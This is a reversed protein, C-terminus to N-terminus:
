HGGIFKFINLVYDCELDVRSDKETDKISEFYQIRQPITLSDWETINRCDWGFIKKHFHMYRPKIDDDNSYKLNFVFGENWVYDELHIQIFNCDFKETLVEFLKEDNEFYFHEIYKDQYVVRGNEWTIYNLPVAKVYIFHKGIIDYDACNNAIFIIKYLRSDKYFSQYDRIKDDIINDDYLKWMYKDMFAKRPYVETIEGKVVDAYIVNRNTCFKVGHGTPFLLKHNDGVLFLVDGNNYFIFGKFGINDDGGLVVAYKENDKSTGTTGWDLSQFENFLFQGLSSMDNYLTGHKYYGFSVYQAYCVEVGLGHPELQEDIQGSYSRIFGTNGRYAKNAVKGIKGNIFFGEIIDGKENRQRGWGHPIIKGNQYYFKGKYILGNDLLTDETFESKSFDANLSNDEM